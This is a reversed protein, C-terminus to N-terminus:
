MRKKETKCVTKCERLQACEEIRNALAPAVNKSQRACDLTAKVCGIVPLAYSIQFISVLFIVTFFLSFISKMLMRRKEKTLCIESNKINVGVLELTFQAM